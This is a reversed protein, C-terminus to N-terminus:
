SIHMIYPIIDTALITHILSYINLFIKSYICLYTFSFTDQETIGDTSLMRMLENEQCFEAGVSSGHQSTDDDSETEFLWNCTHLWKFLM